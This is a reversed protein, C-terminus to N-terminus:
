GSKNLQLKTGIPFCSYRTITNLWRCIQLLVLHLVYLRNTKWYHPDYNFKEDEINVLFDDIFILPKSALANKHTKKWNILFLLENTLPSKRIIRNKVKLMNVDTILNFNLIHSMINVYSLLHNTYLKMDMHLLTQYDQM